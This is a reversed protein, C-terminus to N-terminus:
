QLRFSTIMLENM